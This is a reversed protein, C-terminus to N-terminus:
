FNSLFSKHCRSNSNCVTFTHWNKIWQPPEPENYIVWFSLFKQFCNLFLSTHSYILFKGSGALPTPMSDYLFGHFSMSDGLFIRRNWCEGNCVVECFASFIVQTSKRSSLIPGSRVLCHTSKWSTLIYSWKLGLLSDIGSGVLSSSVESWVILRSEVWVITLQSGVWSM